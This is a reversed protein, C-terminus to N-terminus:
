KNPLSNDLDFFELKRCNPCRYTDFYIIREDMEAYSNLFFLTAGTSGGTRMPLQAIPQMYINCRLCKPLNIKNDKEM